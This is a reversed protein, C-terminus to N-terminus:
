LYISTMHLNLLKFWHICIILKTNNINETKIYQIYESEIKILDCIANSTSILQFNTLKGTKINNPRIIKIKTNLEKQNLNGM